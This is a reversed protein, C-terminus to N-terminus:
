TDFTCLYKYDPSLSSGNQKFHNQLLAKLNL